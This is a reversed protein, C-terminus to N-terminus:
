QNALIAAIDAIVIAREAQNTIEEALLLAAGANAIMAQALIIKVRALHKYDDSKMREIMKNAKTMDSNEIFGAVAGLYVRDHEEFFMQDMFDTNSTLLEVLQEIAALDNVLAYAKALDVIGDWAVNKEQDTAFAKALIAGTRGLMEIAAEQNGVRSQAIAIAALGSLQEFYSGSIQYVARTATGFKGAKAYGKATILLSTNRDSLEKRSFSLSQAKKLMILAGQKDGSKFLFDAMSLLSGIRIDMNTIDNSFAIARDLDDQGLAYLASSAKALFQEHKDPMRAFLAKADVLDLDRLEARFIEQLVSTHAIINNFDDAQYFEDALKLAQDPKNAKALSKAIKFMPYVRDEAPVIGRALTIAETFLASAYMMSNGSYVKLEDRFDATRFIATKGNQGVILTFPIQETGNQFFGVLKNQQAKAKVPYSQGTLTSHLVGGTGEETDFLQLRVYKSHFSLIFDDASSVASAPKTQAIALVLLGAFLFVFFILRAISKRGTM